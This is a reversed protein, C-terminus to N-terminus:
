KMLWAHTGDWAAPPPNKMFVRCREAMVVSPEDGPCSEFGYEAAETFNTTFFVGGRASMCKWFDAPRRAKEERCTRGLLEYVEICQSKGVVTVRDLRRFCFRSRAQEYVNGSVLLTTGYHKNLAELRAAHTSAM